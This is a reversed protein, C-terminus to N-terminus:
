FGMHKISLMAAQNCLVREISHPLRRLLPDWAPHFLGEGKKSQGEHQPPGRVQDPPGRLMPRNRVRRPMAGRHVEPHPELGARAPVEPHPIFSPHFYHV